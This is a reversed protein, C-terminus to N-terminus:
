DCSHTHELSGRLNEGEDFVRVDLEEVNTESVERAHLLVEVDRRRSNIFFEEGDTLEEIARRNTPELGDVFRVKLQDRVDGGCIDVGEPGLASQHHDEVDVVWTVALDVATVGTLNGLLCLFEKGGRTDSVGREESRLSFEEDEVVHAVFYVLVGAEVRNVGFLAGPVGTTNLLTSVKGVLGGVLTTVEGDGRDVLHGVDTVVDAQLKSFDAELDLAAVVLHCAGTLVLDVVLEVGHNVGSVVNKGELVDDLVSSLLPSLGCGEHGLREKAVVAGTHVGM